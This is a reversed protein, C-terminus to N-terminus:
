RAVKPSEGADFFRDPLLERLFPTEEIPTLYERREEKSLTPWLNELQQPDDSV